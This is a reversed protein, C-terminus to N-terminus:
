ASRAPAGNEDQCTLDIGGHEATEGKGPTAASAVIDMVEGAKVAGNRLVMCDRAIAGYIRPWKENRRSNGVAESLLRGAEGLAQFRRTDRGKSAVAGEQSLTCQFAVQRQDAEEDSRSRM